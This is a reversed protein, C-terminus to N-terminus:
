SHIECIIVAIVISRHVPTCPTGVPPLSSVRWFRTALPTCLSATSPSLFTVQATCYRSGPMWSQLGWQSSRIWPPSPLMSPIPAWHKQLRPSTTASRWFSRLLGLALAAPLFSCTKVPRSSLLLLLLHLLPCPVRYTLCRLSRTNLRSRFSHFMKFM